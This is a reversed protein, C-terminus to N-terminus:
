AATKDSLPAKESSYTRGKWESKKGRWFRIASTWTMALYMTGILPLSLAWLGSLRYYRLTPLYSLVMASWGAVSLVRVLQSDSSSVGLLPAWFVTLMVVTVGILLLNSYRLQTFASRAVMMWLSSLTSYERHSTVSHTLGTWLTFGAGKIKKALTCDDILAGHLAAFGGIKELAERKLLICGGAAAAVSSRPSNSLSFPYLLKFFYIFAPILLKEWFTQMQLHAMLSVFSYSGEEAKLKLAAVIGPQAQIDADLLLVYPTKVHRRGQELAWLKGAWGSPLATGEVIELYPHSAAKARQSTKDTSQDNVLVVKLNGGQAKLANLTTEITEEENRAPMLVTVDSLDVSKWSDSNSNSDLNERTSWPMWPTLLLGLWAGAGM